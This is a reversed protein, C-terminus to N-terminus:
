LGGIHGIKDNAYLLIFYQGGESREKLEYTVQWYPGKGIHSNTWNGSLMYRVSSIYHKTVDLKQETVYKEARALADKVSVFPQDTHLTEQPATESSIPRTSDAPDGAFVLGTLLCITVAFCFNKM